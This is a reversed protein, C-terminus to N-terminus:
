KSLIYKLSKFLVKPKIGGTLTLLVIYIVASVAIDGWVGFPLSIYGAFFHVAKTALVVCLLPRGVWLFTHTKVRSKILLRTISLAANLLETFYVTM